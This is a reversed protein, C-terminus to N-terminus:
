LADTHGEKSTKKSSVLSYIGGVVGSALLILLLNVNGWYTALFALIMVLIFTIKKEKIINWGLSLVVDVIIAAIAPQMGTLFANIYRNSRFQTYFVSIVSLIIFPPLITGLVSIVAGKFGGIRYGVLMSGNVAVAGPSSQAIAILNLMEDDEIWGLRDVFEQKMMSVIVYGGGFTFASLTLMKWFLQFYKKTTM